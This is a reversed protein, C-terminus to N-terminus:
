DNKKQFIQSVYGSKGLISIPSKLYITHLFKNLTCHTLVHRSDQADIIFKNHIFVLKECCTEYLKVLVQPSPELINM